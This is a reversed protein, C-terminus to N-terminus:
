ETILTKHSAAIEQFIEILQDGDEAHHHRGNSMDSIAQMSLQDAAVGFTITHIVVDPNDAMIQNAADDPSTGNNAVGDTFVILTKVANPRGINSAKLEYYAELMGDGVSTAGSPLMGDIAAECTAMDTTLPVNLTASTAFSSISVHNERTSQNLVEFFADNGESLMHWRSYAPGANGTRYNSNITEAYVRLDGTLLNVINSSFERESMGISALHPDGTYAALASNYEEETIGNAPDNYLSAITNFLFDEGEGPDSDLGAFFAMSGSRDFVLGIDRDLQSAVSSAEPTFANVSGIQFFLSSSKSASVQVGTALAGGTVAAETLPTFSFRGTGVQDSRGFIIEGDSESTSLLL